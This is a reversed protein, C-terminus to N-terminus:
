AANAEVNNEKNAPSAYLKRCKAYARKRAIVYLVLMATGTVIWSVPYILLLNDYSYVMPFLTFIFVIRLVCSGVVTIITPLISWNMGRMAAASVEYSSTMFELLCIHYMRSIAFVLTAAEATFFSLFLDKFLVFTGGVLFSFGIAAAMCFRFVKDCRDLKGAAYNQGTFTVAAQAFANVVFYAYTEYNLAASSGATADTGFGNIASQVVVNALSFVMGQMGSPIGIYLLQKLDEPVVRIGKFTLRYTEEETLLFFVILGASVANAIVTGLAIGAVGMGLMTTAAIDFFINLIAGIALAILPRTTDGKARLIASGFNYILIFIIGAFYIHLYIRAEDWADFPMNVMGLIPDTAVIGILTLTVGSVISVIATTQIAGRIREFDQHGIHVAVVVNAGISLGVFLSVFLAIIPAVGGVAALAANDIFQGAVVSDATNFLQQFISTLALPIAFLIVRSPIPGNLMDISNKKKQQVGETKSM